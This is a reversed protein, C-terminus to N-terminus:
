ITAGGGGGLSRVTLCTPKILQSYWNYTYNM